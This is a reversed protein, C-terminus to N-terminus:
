YGLNQKLNPNQDLISQPIPMRYSYNTFPYVQTRRGSDKAYVANMVGEVKDLRVLDFWRQGEFALELRREKLVAELLATRNGRTGSSLVALKARTRVQDIIDAAANLDGGERQILAEAKLLLIDAYRYKILSNVASRMKYMFPYNNAPYYNSWTTQYFVISQAYRVQDGEQQFTNILDRSPTVWKAWTFNSNYNTLDRGFMWTVWNGNGAFFQGELISERTNRKKADTNNENMGFLNSFDDELAFGDAALEDAYQIVKNYDRLPKEAYVKALVARAVSKSFITKNGANNAPANPIAELLDKQIQEYVEKETSQTPFYSPYVEKINESTIDKAVTTVLPVDGWLRVMDFYVLARFIKAEAKFQGREVSTLNNDNVSDVYQVMKNALAVDEMYRSWDRALVSNSGEISNNEFPLVEAGTTGAYANDAHADGVLLLDLYWHEQRNRIQDYMAQRHSLVSAKDKFAVYEGREDVGETVDSFSDLPDRALSCSQLLTAIGVWVICYSFYRKM